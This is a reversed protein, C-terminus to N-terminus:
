IFEYFIRLPDKQFKVLFCVCAVCEELPDRKQGPLDYVKKEKKKKQQQKSCCPSCFQSVQRASGRSLPSCFWSVSALLKGLLVALPVVLWVVLVFRTAIKLALPPSPSISPPTISTLTKQVAIFAPHSSPSAPQTLHLATIFAIFTCSSKRATTSVVVVITPTVIISSAAAAVIPKMQM